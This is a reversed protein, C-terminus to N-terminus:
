LKVTRQRPINQAFARMGDDTITDRCKGNTHKKHNKIFRSISDGEGVISAGCPCIFTVSDLDCFSIMPKKKM